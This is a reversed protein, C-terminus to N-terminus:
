GPGDAATGEDDPEGAPRAPETTATRAPETTATRAPETTATRAPETTATRAADTTATRAADKVIDSLGALDILERLQIPADRLRVSCGARRAAVQLRALGDVVSLDPSRGAPLPWSAVETDGRVLVVYPM